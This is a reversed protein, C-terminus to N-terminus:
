PIVGLTKPEPPKLQCKQLHRYIMAQLQESCHAGKCAATGAKLCLM